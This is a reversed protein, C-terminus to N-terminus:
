FKGRWGNVVISAVALAAIGYQVPAFWTPLESYVGLLTFSRVYLEGILAGWSLAIVAIATAAAIRWFAFEMIFVLYCLAIVTWLGGTAYRASEFTVDFFTTIALWTAGLSFVIALIIQCAETLDQQFYNQRSNYRQANM